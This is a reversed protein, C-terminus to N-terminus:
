REEDADGLPKPDEFDADQDDVENEVGVGDGSWPPLRAALM